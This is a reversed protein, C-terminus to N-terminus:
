PDFNLFRKSAWYNFGALPSEGFDPDNRGIPKTQLPVAVRKLGLLDIEPVDTSSARPIKSGPFDGSSVIPALIKLHTWGDRYSTIDTPRNTPRDTRGDTRGDTPGDTPGDTVM